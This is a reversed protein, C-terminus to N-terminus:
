EMEDPPNISEGSEGMPNTECEAVEWEKLDLRRILGVASPGKRVFSSIM